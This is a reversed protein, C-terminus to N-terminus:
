WETGARLQEFRNSSQRGFRSGNRKFVRRRRPGDGALGLPSLQRYQKAVQHARGFKRRPEIGLVQALDHARVMAAGCFHDLAELSMHQLVQAVPDNHTKAPGPRVLVVGLPCHAGPEGQDLRHM